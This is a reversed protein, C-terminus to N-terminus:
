FHVNDIMILGWNVYLALGFKFDQKLTATARQCAYFFLLDTLVVSVRMTLLYTDDAPKASIRMSKAPVVQSQIFALAREFYAFFPPYDLTGPETSEFYWDAMPLQHTLQKWNQHVDYDTSKYCRFLLLKFAALSIYAKLTSM